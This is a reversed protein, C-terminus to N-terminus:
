GAPRARRPAGPWPARGRGGRVTNYSSGKALDGEDPIVDTGYLADYLSGWRANAANLAFRANLMPVVLQPGATEAVERDVGSTAITFDGPEDVLYGIERLWGEYAEIDAPAGPRERYYDDLLAQLEDRRALLERNRPTLDHIIADAGAWFADPEIGSGPLAEDVVFRHLVEAVSLGGVQVREAM